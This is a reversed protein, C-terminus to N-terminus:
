RTQVVSAQARQKLVEECRQVLAHIPHGPPPPATSLSLFLKAEALAGQADGDGDLKLVALEYHPEAARPALAVARRLAEGAPQNQKAGALAQGFLLAAAYSSPDLEAADELANLAAASRGREHLARGLAAQARSSAPDIDVAAQLAALEAAPENSVRAIEAKALLPEPDFPDAQAARAAFIRAVGAQGVALQARAMACLAGSDGPAQALVTKVAALAAAPNGLELEIRAELVRAAPVDGVAARALALASRAANADGRAAALAAARAAAEYGLAGQEAAAVRYTQEAELGRGARDLAVGLDFQVAPEPLAQSLAQFKEVAQQPALRAAAVLTEALLRKPREGQVARVDVMMPVDFVPSQALSLQTREAPKASVKGLLIAVQQSCQGTVGLERAKADASRLTERAEAYLPEARDTLAARYLKRQEANLGGPFPSSAIAQGLLLQAEGLRAMACVAPEAQRMAVTEEARKKVSQLLAIKRNLTAMLPPRIPQRRFSEFAPAGLAFHADAVAASAEDPLKEREKAPLARYVRELETWSWQANGSERAQAFLRAAERWAAIQLAPKEKAARALDVMERAGRDTEGLRARLQARA